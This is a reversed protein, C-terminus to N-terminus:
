TPQAFLEDFTMYWIQSKSLEEFDVPNSEWKKIDLWQWNLEYENERGNSMKSYTTTRKPVFIESNGYKQWDIRVGSYVDGLSAEDFRYRHFRVNCPMNGATRDFEIAIVFKKNPGIWKGVVNRKSNQKSELLVSNLLMDRKGAFASKRSLFDNETGFVLGFPDLQPALMFPGGNEKIVEKTEQEQSHAFPRGKAVARKWLRKGPEMSLVETWYMDTQPRLQHLSGFSRYSAGQSGALAAYGEIYIMVPEGGPSVEAITGEFRACYSGSLEDLTLLGQDILTQASNADSALQSYGASTMLLYLAILCAHKIM